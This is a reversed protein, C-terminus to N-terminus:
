EESVSSKKEDATRKKHPKGGLSRESIENNNGGFKVTATNLMERIIGAVEGQLTTMVGERMVDEFTHGVLNENIRVERILEFREQLKMELYITKSLSEITVKLNSIENFTWDRELVKKRIEEIM